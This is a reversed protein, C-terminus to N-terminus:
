LPNELNTCLMVVKGFKILQTMTYESANERKEVSPTILEIRIPIPMMLLGVM